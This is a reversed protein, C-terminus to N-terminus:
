MRSAAVASGMLGVDQNTVVYVPMTELLLSMRGKTRFARLFTGDTMKDIIKPAIGGAIFVGGHALTTLALNGTQAGYITVFLDLARQALVDGGTLAARSIAAAPDGETLARALAATEPVGGQERLFSYIRVLGAGSLLREYSIRGLRETLYRWLDVQLADAPAFDVHGGESPLVEYHRDCWCLIAEGLGTGAGILARVGHAHPTGAQLVTLDQPRLVEIGYGTARWDNILGVKAIGTVGAIERTAIHWPLNTLTAQQGADTSIVPGAVGFCAASPRHDAPLTQLFAQVLTAFDRYDASKFLRRHLVHVGDSTVVALALLVKTGGIDGAIVYRNGADV